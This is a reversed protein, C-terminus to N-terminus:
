MFLDVLAQKLIDQSLNVFAQKLIDQMISDVQEEQAFLPNPGIGQFFAAKKL